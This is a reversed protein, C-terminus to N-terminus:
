EHESSTSSPANAGGGGGGGAYTVPSGTISTTAGAGGAMLVLQITNSFWCKSCGSNCWWWRWIWFFQVLGPNAGEVMQVKLLLKSTSYKGNRCDWPTCNRNWWDEVRFWWRTCRFRSPVPDNDVTDEVM